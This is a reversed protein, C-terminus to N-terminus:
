RVRFSSRAPGDKLITPFPIQVHEDIAPVQEVVQVLVGLHVAHDGVGATRTAHHLRCGWAMAM